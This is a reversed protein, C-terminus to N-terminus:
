GDTQPYNMAPLTPFPELLGIEVAREVAEGRSSAQLKGYISLAHTKITNRSVLLRDAIDQFSLYTPLYPLLRLEAATLASSGALTGSADELQRRMEQLSATLTGLGPRQRAIQEAERVVLQAGATDALALYARALQLLAEVAFWPAAHTAMPRVIQSRVLDRRAREREGRWIAIRAEVAFVILSPLIEEFRAVALTSRAQQAHRDAATWDGREIAVVARYAMAVAATGGSGAGAVVADAFAADAAEEDGLLRHASGLLWLANARWFSTPPEQAVSIRANDLMDLAGRRAMVARLMARQSEFSASGDGPPQGLTSRDAIDAMQDADEARGNLLHMWGAIVALAPHHEFTHADFGRIWGDVTASRGGYFTPLAVATTLRAAAETDGSAFAHEAARSVDGAAAYWAAAREHLEPVIGPELRGLEERLFERLLLHYRYTADTGGGQILLSRRALSTFRREAHPLGCVAKVLAPTMAELISTRTLLKVDEKPLVNVLESRLYETIFRDTGSVAIEGPGGAGPHREHALTALYVAAAWGETRETLRRIEDPSCRHGLAEGLARVETEDLALVDPGIELLGRRVRFRGYPLDPAARGTLVLRFGRPLHDALGTLVDLATTDVVRHVDDLILVAPRDWRALESVLIPLAAALMRESPAALASWVSGPLPGVRALAAALYSLLVAPDNDHHDLTLWAVPRRLRAKWQTVLTTKGYGPPAVISVIPAEPKQALLAILRTRDIIGPERM